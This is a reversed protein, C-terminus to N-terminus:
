TIILKYFAAFVVSIAGPAGAGITLNINLHTRNTPNPTSITIPDHATYVNVSDASTNFSGITSGAGFTTSQGEITVTWYHSASNTTVTRSTASLYTFYPAYDSRLRTFALNANAISSTFFGQFHIPFTEVTLWRTGDYYIDMGLDTRFRRDNTAPSGPNSTGKNLNLTSSAIQLDNGVIVGGVAATTAVPVDAAALASVTLVGGASNQRVIQNAGGTASLDAGTGGRALLLQGTTIKSAPLSPIDAEVLARATVAGAGGSTPGFLGTNANQNAVSIQPTAGGSSALPSAASVTTVGGSVASEAGADDKSYLLGDSKAYLAVKNAAPTGSASGEDFTIKDAEIKTTM